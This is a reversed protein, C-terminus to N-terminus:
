PEGEYRLVNEGLHVLEAGGVITRGFQRDAADHADDNIGDEEDDADNDSGPANAPPALPFSFWDDRSVSLHRLGFQAARSGELEGARLGL